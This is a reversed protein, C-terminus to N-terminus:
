VSTQETVNECRVKGQADIWELSFLELFLM